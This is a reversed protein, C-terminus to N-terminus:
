ASRRQAVAVTLVNHLEREHDAKTMMNARSTHWIAQTCDNFVKWLDPTATLKPPALPDKPVEIYDPLYAEPIATVLSKAFEENLKIQAALKYTAILEQSASIIREISVRMEKVLEERKGVHRSSWTALEEGRAVAGNSCMLRYTFMDGGFGQSADISNRVMCGLQVIDGVKVEATKDSLIEAHMSNGGRSYHIKKVKFGTADILSLVEENPLLAYKTSVDACFKNSRYVWKRGTEHRKGDIGTFGLSRETLDYAKWTEIIPGFSASADSESVITAAAPAPASVSVAPVYQLQQAAKAAVSVRALPAAAYIPVRRLKEEPSWGLVKYGVIEPAAQSLGAGVDPQNAANSNMTWLIQSGILLSEM